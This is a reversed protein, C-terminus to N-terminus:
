LKLRWTSFPLDSVCLGVGLSGFIMPARLWDFGIAVAGFRAGTAPQNM